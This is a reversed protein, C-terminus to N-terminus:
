EALQGQQVVFIGFPTFFLKIVKLNTAGYKERLILLNLSQQLISRQEKVFM